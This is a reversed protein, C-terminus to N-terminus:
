TQFTVIVFLTFQGVKLQVMKYNATFLIIVCFEV